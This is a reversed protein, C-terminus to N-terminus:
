MSTCLHLVNIHSGLIASVLKSQFIGKLSPPAHTLEPVKRFDILCVLQSLLNGDEDELVDAFYFPHDGKTRSVAWRCWESRVRTINDDEPLAPFVKSNLAVLGTYGLNHRWSSLRDVIQTITLIHGSQRRALQSVLKQVISGLPTTYDLPDEEPFVETWIDKIADESPAAWPGSNGFTM